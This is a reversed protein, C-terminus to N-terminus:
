ADNTINNKEKYLKFDPYHKEACEPCISHSFEAPSHDQVYTEIQQWYGKDDRVKKCASCIPLLGSLTNIKEVANQLKRILKKQEKEIALRKNLETVMKDHAQKLNLAARVRALFEVSRIPKTIFDTTGVEFTKQITRDAELGAGSVMIVPIHTTAKKKRLSACFDFGSIDPMVIDLIILDPANNQAYDMGEKASTTSYINKYINKYGNEIFISKMLDISMIDDDIILIQMNNLQPM